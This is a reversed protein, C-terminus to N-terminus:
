AEEEKTWYAPRAEAGVWVGRDNLRMRPNGNSGAIGAPDACVGGRRHLDFLGVSSFTQCCSACHPKSDRYAQVKECCTVAFV